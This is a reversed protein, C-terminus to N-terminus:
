ININRKQLEQQLAMLKNDSRSIAQRIEHAVKKDLSGLVQSIIQDAQSNQMGTAQKTAQQKADKAAKAANVEAAKGWENDWQTHLRTWLAYFSDVANKLRSASTKLKDKFEGPARESMKVLTPPISELDTVHGGFSAEKEQRQEASSYIALGGFYKLDNQVNAYRPDKSLSVLANKMGDTPNVRRSSTSLYNEAFWKGKLRGVMTKSTRKMDEHNGEAYLNKIMAPLTDLYLVSMKNVNYLLQDLSNSTMSECLDQLKM